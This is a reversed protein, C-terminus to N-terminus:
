ALRQAQIEPKAMATLFQGTLGSSPSEALQEALYALDDEQL